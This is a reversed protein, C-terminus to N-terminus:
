CSAVAATTFKGGNYGLNGGKFFDLITIDLLHNIPLFHVSVSESVRFYITCHLFNVLTYKVSCIVTLPLPNNIPTCKGIVQMPFDNESQYLYSM